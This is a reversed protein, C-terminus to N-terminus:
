KILVMKRTLSRDAWSLIYFYVGSAVAQGADDRGDFNVRHTGADYWKDELTRVRQGLLNVIELSIRQRSPLAFEISTTPNFPNPYNQGLQYEHPLSLDNDHVDTPLYVQNNGIVQTGDQRPDTWVFWVRGRYASTAPSSMFEPVTSSVAQNTGIQAGGNTYIQYFVQRLGNRHDVWAISRYSNEDVSIAPEVPLAGPSDSVQLTSFSITGTRTISTTYLNRQNSGIGVWAFSIVGSDNVAAALHEISIGSQDSSFAYSGGLSKDPNYWKGKITSPFSGDDLWGVFFRGVSDTSTFLDLNHLDSAPTSILFEAGDLANAATLWRGYVQSTGNRKDFWTVLSRGIRNIAACPNSKVDSKISDSVAFDPTVFLGDFSGFRAFVRQGSGGLITRSDTWVVLSKSDTTAVYPEAQLASGSDQNLKQNSYQPVGSHSITQTYIDGADNRLSTFAVLDLRWNAPAISPELAPAGQTDDNLNREAGLVPVNLTDFLMLHINADNNVFETWAVAMRNARQFEVSPAWRRGVVTTNKVEPAGAIAAGTALRRGMIASQAGYSGWSLYFHSDTSATIDLDWNTANTDGASVLVNLGVSGIIPDFRQFYVEQGSRRDIWGILYKDVSSFAVIPAYQEFSAPGPPVISFEAAVAVGNGSFQRAYIDPQGNRYDEWAVLYGSGPQVSVRPVWHSSSGADTNVGTPTIVSGGSPNYIRMYVHSGLTSYNEWVIVTRGDPYVDVDYPGAFASNSTDNVVFPALDISLNSTFRSGVILGNSRDRYFLYVRGSTDTKIRPEVLDAGTASGAIMQNVGSLSGASDLLQLFVKQSGLREDQWAAIWKGSKLFKISVNDQTFMAPSVVDSLRYETSTPFNATNTILYEIRGDTCGVSDRGILQQQHIANRDFAAAFASGVLTSFGVGLIVALVFHRKLM